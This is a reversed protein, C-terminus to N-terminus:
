TKKKKKKKKKTKKKKKKKKKRVFHNIYKCLLLKNWYVESPSTTIVDSM